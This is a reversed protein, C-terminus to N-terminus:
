EKVEVVASGVVKDRVYIRLEYTGPDRPVPWPNPVDVMLVQGQEFPGMDDDTTQIEMERGTAKSLFTYKSFTVNGKLWKSM